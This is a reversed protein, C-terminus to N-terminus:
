KCGMITNYIKKYTSSDYHLGDPTGFNSGLANYILFQADDYIIASSYGNYFLLWFHPM